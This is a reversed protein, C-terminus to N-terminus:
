RAWWSDYGDDDTLQRPDNGDAGMTFIEFNGTRDSDFLLRQPDLRATSAPLTSHPAPTDPLPHLADNLASGGLRLFPLALLIMIAIILGVLGLIAWLVKRRRRSPRTM